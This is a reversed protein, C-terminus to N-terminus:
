WFNVSCRYVTMNRMFYQSYFSLYPMTGTRYLQCNVLSGSYNVFVQTIPVIISFYKTCHFLSSVERKELPQCQALCHLHFIIVCDPDLNSFFFFIYIYICVCVYVCMPLCTAYVHFNHVFIWESCPGMWCICTLLTLFILWISLSLKSVNPPSDEWRHEPKHFHTRSFRFCFIINSCFELSTKVAMRYLHSTNLCLM